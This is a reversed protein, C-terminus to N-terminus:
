ELAFSRISRGDLDRPLLVFTIMEGSPAGHAEDKCMNFVLVLIGRWSWSGVCTAVRCRVEVVGVYEGVAVGGRWTETKRGWSSRLSLARTVLACVAGEREGEGEDVLVLALVLM